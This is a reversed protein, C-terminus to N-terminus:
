PRKRGPIGQIEHQRQVAYLVALECLAESAIAHAEPSLMGELLRLLDAVRRGHGAIEEETVLGDEM